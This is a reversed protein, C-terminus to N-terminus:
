SDSDDGLLLRALLLAEAQTATSVAIANAAFAEIADLHEPYIPGSSPVETDHTWVLHQGQDLVARAAALKAARATAASLDHHWSRELRPLGFLREIQAQKTDELRVRLRVALQPFEFSGSFNGSSRPSPM